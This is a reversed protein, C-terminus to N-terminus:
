TPQLLRSSFTVKGGRTNRYTFEDAGWNGGFDPHQLKVIAVGNGTDLDLQVLNYAHYNAKLSAGAAFEIFQTDPTTLASFTPCHLHGRLLVQCDEALHPQVKQIDKEALWYIPHHMLSIRLRVGAYKRKSEALADAVQAEGLLLRAQENDRFSLWASNLGVVVVRHCGRQISRMSYYMTHDLGIDLTGYFRALFAAYDGFKAMAWRKHENDALFDNIEKYPKGPDLMGQAFDIYQQLLWTPEEVLGRNVDHNGPVIFISDRRGSLGCTCLVKDLWTAALDYEETKGSFALDGTFFIVDPQLQEKAMVARIDDLM